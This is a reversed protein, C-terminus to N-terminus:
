TTIKIQHKSNSKEGYLFFFFSNLSCLSIIHIRQSTFFEVIFLLDDGRRTMNHIELEVDKKIM